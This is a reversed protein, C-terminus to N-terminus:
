FYVYEYIKSIMNNSVYLFLSGCYNFIYMGDGMVLRVLMQQGYIWDNFNIMKIFIKEIM